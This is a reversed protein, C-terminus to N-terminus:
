IHYRKLMRQLYQREIKSEKEAQEWVRNPFVINYRFETENLTVM